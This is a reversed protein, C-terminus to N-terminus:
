GGIILAWRHRGTRHCSRRVESAVGSCTHFDNTGLYTIGMACVGLQSEGIEEKRWQLPTLARVDVRVNAVREVPAVDLEVEAGSGRSRGVLRLETDSRFHGTASRAHVSVDARPASAIPACRGTAVERCVWERRDGAALQLGVQRPCLGHRTDGLVVPDSRVAELQQVNYPQVDM